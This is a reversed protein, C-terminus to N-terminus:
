TTAGVPMGTARVQSAISVLIRKHTYIERHMNARNLCEGVGRTEPDDFDKPITLQGHVVDDVVNRDVLGANRPVKPNQVFRTENLDPWVTLLAEVREARFRELVKVSPNRGIAPHPPLPKISKPVRKM